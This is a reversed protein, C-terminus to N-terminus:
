EDLRYGSVVFAKDRAALTSGDSSFDLLEAALPSGVIEWVGIANLQYLQIIPQYDTYGEYACDDELGCLPGSVVLSSGDGSLKLSNGFGMEGFLAQGIQTWVPESGLKFKYVKVSVCTPECDNSGPSGVALIKGNESLSVSSGILDEYDVGTIEQGLSECGTEIDCSWARVSGSIGDFSDGLAIVRGNGSLDMTLFGVNSWKDITDVFDWDLSGDNFHYMKAYGVPNDWLSGSYYNAALVVLVTGDQSLSVQYGFADADTSDTGVPQGRPVWVGGQYSYVVVYGGGTPASEFSRGLQTAGVALVTGDGSLAVSIGLNDNEDAGELLQGLPEWVQSGDNSNRLKHIHVEGRFLNSEDLVGIAMVSGDSSLAASAPSSYEYPLEMVDDGVKRWITPRTPVAPPKSASTPPHTPMSYSGLTEMLRTTFSADEDVSALAEAESRQDWARGWERGHQSIAAVTPLTLLLLALAKMQNLSTFLVTIDLNIEKMLSRIHRRASWPGLVM